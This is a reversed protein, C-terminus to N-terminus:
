IFISKTQKKSHSRGVEAELHQSQLHTDSLEAIFIFQIRELCGDKYVELSNISKVTIKIQHYKSKVEPGREQKPLHEGSPGHGWGQKHKKKSVPNSHLRPQHQLLSGGAEAESARPNSHGQNVRFTQKQPAKAQVAIV